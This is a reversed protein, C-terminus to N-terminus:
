GACGHRDGLSVADVDRPQVSESLEGVLVTEDPRASALMQQLYALTRHGALSTDGSALLIDIQEQIMDVNLTTFDVDIVPAAAADDANAIVARLDNADVTGDGNVDNNRM